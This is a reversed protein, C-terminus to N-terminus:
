SDSAAVTIIVKGNTVIFLDDGTGGCSFGLYDFRGSMIITKLAAQNQIMGMSEVYSVHRTAGAAVALGDIVLLYDSLNINTPPNNQDAPGTEEKFMVTFECNESTNNAIDFEFGIAEIDDLKDKHEEWEDNDNLDVPYWYYGTNATFSFNIGQVIPYTGSVLCGATLLCAVFIGASVFRIIQNRM